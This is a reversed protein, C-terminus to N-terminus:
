VFLKEVPEEKITYIKRYGVITAGAHGYNKYNREFKVYKIAEELTGIFVEYENNHYLIIFSNEVCQLLNHQEYDKLKEINTNEKTM